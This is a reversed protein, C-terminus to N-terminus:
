HMMKRGGYYIMDGYKSNSPRTGQM